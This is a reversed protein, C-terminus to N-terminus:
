TVRKWPLFVSRNRGSLDNWAWALTVPPKDIIHHCVDILDQM